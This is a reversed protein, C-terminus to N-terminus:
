MSFLSEGSPGSPVSTMARAFPISSLKVYWNGVEVGSGLLKNSNSMPVPISAKSQKTRLFTTAYGDGEPREISPGREGSQELTEDERAIGDWYKPNRLKGSGGNSIRPHENRGNSICAGSLSLPLISCARSEVRRAVWVIESQMCMSSIM